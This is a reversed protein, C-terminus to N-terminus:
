KILVMKKIQIYSGAQIKYFYIGSTLDAANFNINYSGAPKVENLLTSVERGLIDYIKLSVLGAEKMNFKITTSPNFPNPYNQSLSYVNPIPNNNIEIASAYDVSFSTNSTDLVLLNNTSKIQVKFGTGTTISSPIIWRYAEIAADISDILQILSGNKLLSIEV